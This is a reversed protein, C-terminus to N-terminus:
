ILSYSIGCQDLMQSQKEIKSNLKTLDHNLQTIQTQLAQKQATDKALQQSISERKEVLNAVTSILENNFSQLKSPSEARM